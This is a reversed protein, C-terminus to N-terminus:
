RCAGVLVTALVCGNPGARWSHQVGNILMVDGAHLQTSGEELGLEIDGSVVIGYDITSTAHMPTFFGPALQTMIWKTSGAPIDHSYSELALTPDDNSPSPDTTLSWLQYVCAGSGEPLSELNEHRVLGAMGGTPDTAFAVPAHGDAVVM